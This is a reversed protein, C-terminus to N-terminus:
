VHSRHLCGDPQGGVVVVVVLLCFFFHWLLLLLFATSTKQNTPCPTRTKPSLKWPLCCQNKAMGRLRSQQFGFQQKIVRFLHEVKARIHAKAREMWHLVQGEPTEHVRRRQGARLAIRCEVDRGALEERKQLGQYGADGYVVREEGHLLEAAVTVDHM